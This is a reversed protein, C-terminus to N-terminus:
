GPPRIRLQGAELEFVIELTDGGGDRFVTADLAAQHERHSEPETPGARLLQLPDILDRGLPPPM